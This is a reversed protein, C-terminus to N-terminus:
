PKIFHLKDEFWSSLIREPHICGKCTDHAKWKPHQHATAVFIEMAMAFELFSM